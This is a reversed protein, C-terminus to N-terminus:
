SLPRRVRVYEIADRRELALTGDAVLVEIGREIDGVLCPAGRDPWRSVLADILQDLPLEADGLADVIIRREREENM